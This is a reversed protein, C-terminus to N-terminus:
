LEPPRPPEYPPNKAVRKAVRVRKEAMDADWRLRRAAEWRLRSAAEVRAAATRAAEREESGGESQRYWEAAV